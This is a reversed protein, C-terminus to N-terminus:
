PSSNLRTSKRDRILPFTVRIFSYLPSAGLDASARQVHPPITEVAVVLLGIILPLVLILQALGLTLVTIPIGLRIYLIFIAVGLALNPVLIPILVVSRSFGSRGLRTGTLFAAALLGVLTGVIAAIAGTQLSVILARVM